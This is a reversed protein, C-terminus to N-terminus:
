SNTLLVKKIKRGLRLTLTIGPQAKFVPTTTKAGDVSAAGEKIKRDAESTSAAFGIKVLIKALRVGDGERNAFEAFPVSATEIEEPVQDKQFQKAWDEGAKGAAEASHFDAVISRALEKKLAMPHAKGSAADAKMAAIQEVRVDTLLEYYRWMM